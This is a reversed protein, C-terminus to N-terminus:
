NNKQINNFLVGEEKSSNLELGIEPEENEYTKNLIAIIEEKRQELENKRMISADTELASGNFM